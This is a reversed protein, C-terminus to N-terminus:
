NTSSEQQVSGSRVYYVRHDWQPGPYDYNHKVRGMDAIMSPNFPIREWGDLHDNDAFDVWVDLGLSLLVEAEDRDIEKVENIWPPKCEDAM